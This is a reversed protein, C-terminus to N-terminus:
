PRVCLFPYANWYIWHGSNWGEDGTELNKIEYSNSWGAKATITWYYSNWNTNPLVLNKINANYAQLLETYTLLRWDSYGNYTLDECSTVPGGSWGPIVPMASGSQAPTYELNNSPLRISCNEPSGDCSASGSGAKTVDQWVAHTITDNVCGSENGSADKFKVYVTAIGDTQGLTWPKSTNFSEWTGGSECGATNTVYMQNATTSALTLTVATASTISAGADISVTSPSSTSNPIVCRIAQNSTYSQTSNTTYWSMLYNTTTVLDASASWIGVRFGPVGNTSGAWTPEAPLGDGTPLNGTDPKTMVTEYATPLRMGQDACTKINGEFYSAAEGRGTAPSNWGQLWDTGEVGSIGDADLRQNIYQTTYYLCRDIATMESYGLFVHMPCVRGSIKSNTSMDVSSFSTGSKELSKQWGNWVIGSANLIRSGNLEKWIKFGSVGDALVYEMEVGGPGWAASATTAAADSYCSGTCTVPSAKPYAILTQSYIGTGFNNSAAIRFWYATGNTLGTITTSANSSVGDNVTTWTTGTDTSYQIVYDTILDGGDSLPPTWSLSVQSNGSTAILGTPAEPALDSNPLVCRITYASTPMGYQASGGAANWRMYYYWITFSPSGTRGDASACVTQGSNPVGNVSGAWTPSVGLDGSPLSAPKAMTTEYSTPLRMGKDACVKINGEYFSGLEGRGSGIRNWDQLWEVGEGSFLPSTCNGSPCADVFRQSANGADYYLCRSSATMNYYDMFVHTPCVRGAINNVSTFDIAKFSTGPRELEKQWGRAVLGSSNLIRTGNRETWVKFGSTGSAYQLGIVSSGPGLRETGIPLDQAYNPSTGELYCDGACASPTVYTYGTPLTVSQGDTNTVIVDRSGAIGVPTLVTISEGSVLTLETAASGGITVSFGAQFGTGSITVATGGTISGLNPSIGSITPAPFEYPAMSAEESLAGDVGDKVGGVRYYYTTGGTLSTHTFTSNVGSLVNSSTSVDSTTSWYLNYSTANPVSSWTLAVSQTLKVPTSLTPATPPTVVKIAFIGSSSWNGADDREQAYLTHTAESLASVPTFYTDTTENSGTTLDSNNLKFRYTGAGGGGSTWSWTPTANGTPTVGTLSPANPAIDDHTITDNVCDTENGVADKFKAYVTATNNTQGLTWSKSTGYTEWIGGSECGDTNTIYVQDPSGGASLTLISAETTTYSVGDNISVSPSTPAASDYTRSLQSAATNNNEGIDQAVNEAVDVTVTGQGSPTVNVTYTDGSGTFGSTTGNTVNLDSVTFGTVNESFTITVPIPSTNTATPATSSLAVSPRIIDSALTTFSENGVLTENGAEDRVVVAAYYTKQEALLRMAYSTTGTVKGPQPNGFQSVAELSQLQDSTSLYVYYSLASELTINDVAKSWSIVASNATEDSVALNDSAIQPGSTDVAIPNLAYTKRNLGEGVYAVCVKYSGEKLERLQGVTPNIGTIAYPSDCPESEKVITVGRVLSEIKESMMLLKPEDVLSWLRTALSTDSMNQKLILNETVLDKNYVVLGVPDKVCKGSEACRAAVAEKNTKVEVTSSIQECASLTLGLLIIQWSSFVQGLASKM